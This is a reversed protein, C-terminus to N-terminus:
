ALLVCESRSVKKRTDISARSCTTTERRSMEGNLRAHVHLTRGSRDDRSLEDIEVFRRDPRPVRVRIRKARAESRILDDQTM